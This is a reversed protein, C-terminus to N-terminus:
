FIFGLGFSITSEKIDVNKDDKIQYDVKLVVQADPYFNFGFNINNIDKLEGVGNATKEVPNYSEYQFFLPTKYEIKM